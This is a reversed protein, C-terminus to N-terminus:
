RNMWECVDILNLYTFPSGPSFCVRVYSFCFQISKWINARDSSEESSATVWQAVTGVPCPFLSGLRWAWCVWELYSRQTDTLTHNHTLVTGRQTFNQWMMNLVLQQFVTAKYNALIRWVALPAVDRSLGGGGRLKGGYKQSYTTNFSM